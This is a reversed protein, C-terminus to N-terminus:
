SLLIHYFFKLITGYCTCYCYCWFKLVKCTCTDKMVVSSSLTQVMSNRNNAISNLIPCLIPIYSITPSRCPIILSKNLYHSSNIVNSNLTIASPCLWFISPRMFLLLIVSIMFLMVFQFYPLYDFLQLFLMMIVTMFSFSTIDLWFFLYLRKNSGWKWM